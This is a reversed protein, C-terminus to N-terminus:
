LTRWPSLPSGNAPCGQNWASSCDGGLSGSCPNQPLNEALAMGILAEDGLNAYEPLAALYQIAVPRVKLPAAGRIEAATLKKPVCPGVLHLSKAPVDPLKTAATERRLNM